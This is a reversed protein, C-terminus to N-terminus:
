ITRSLGCSFVVGIQCKSSLTTHKQRCNFRQMGSTTRMFIPFRRVIHLKNKTTNPSRNAQAGLRFRGVEVPFAVRVGLGVGVDLEVTAGAGKGLGVAFGADDGVEAETEKAPFVIVITTGLEAPPAVSM